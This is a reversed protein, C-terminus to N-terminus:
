RQLKRNTLRIDSIIQEIANSTSFIEKNEAQICSLRRKLKQIMREVLGIARHDGVPADLININNENCYNTVQKGVLSNAQDIRITRPTEHNYAYERLFKVVNTGTAKKFIEVTAYKSYCDSCTLFYIEKDKENM